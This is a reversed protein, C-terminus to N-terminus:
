VVRREGGVSYNENAADIFSMTMYVRNGIGNM